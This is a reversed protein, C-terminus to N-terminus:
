AAQYHSKANIGGTNSAEVQSSIALTNGYEASSDTKYWPGKYLRPESRTRSVAVHHILIWLDSGCALRARHVLVRSRAHIM